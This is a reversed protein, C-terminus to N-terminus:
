EMKINARKWNKTWHKDTQVHGKRVYKVVYKSFNNFSFSEALRVVFGEREGGFRSEKLIEKDLFAQLDKLSSFTGRYILPVSKFNYKECFNIMEDYSFWTNESSLVGFVYFCDNLSTYEISHMGELNEGYVVEQFFNSKYGHFKKVMSFSPHSAPGSVSRAFVKGNKLSTNGGDLKETIILEKNLFIRQNQHIKDDSHIEPSFTFHYTRPYKPPNM